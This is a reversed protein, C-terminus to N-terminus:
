TEQAIRLSVAAIIPIFIIIISHGTPRKHQM